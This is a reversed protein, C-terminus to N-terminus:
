VPGESYFAKLLVFSKLEAFTILPHVSPLYQIPFCLHTSVCMCWSVICKAIEETFDTENKFTLFFSFLFLDGGFFPMNRGNMWDYGSSWRATVFDIFVGLSSNRQDSGATVELRPSLTHSKKGKKKTHTPSPPQSAKETPSSPTM